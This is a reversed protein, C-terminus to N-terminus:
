AEPRHTLRVYWLLDSTLESYPITYENTGKPVTARLTAFASEDPITEYYIGVDEYGTQAPSYPTWTVKIGTAETTYAIGTPPRIQIEPTYPGAARYNVAVGNLGIINDTINSTQSADDYVVSGQKPIGYNSQGISVSEFNLTSFAVNQHTATIDSDTFDIYMETSYGSIAALKTTGFYVNSSNAFGYAYNRKLTISNDPNNITAYLVFCNNDATTLQFFNDEIYSLTGVYNYSYSIISFNSTPSATWKIDNGYFYIHSFASNDISWNFLNSNDRSLEWKCYRISLTFGTLSGATFEIFFGGASKINLHELTVNGTIGNYGLSSWTFCSGTSTNTYLDGNGRIIASYGNQNISRIVNVDSATGVQEFIIDEDWVAAIWASYLGTYTGGTGWTMTKAM